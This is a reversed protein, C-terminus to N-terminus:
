VATLHNTNQLSGSKAGNSDSSTMVQHLAPRLRRRHRDM